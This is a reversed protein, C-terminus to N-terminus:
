PAAEQLRLCRDLAGTRCPRGPLLGAAPGHVSEVESSVATSPGSCASASVRQRHRDQELIKDYANCGAQGPQTVFTVRKGVPWDEILRGMLVSDAPPPRSSGKPITWIDVLDGRTSASDRLFCALGLRLRLRDGHDSPLAPAAFIACRRHSPPGIVQM